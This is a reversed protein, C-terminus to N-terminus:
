EKVGTRFTQFLFSLGAAIGAERGIEAAAVGQYDGIPFLAESIELLKKKTATKKDDRLYQSPM